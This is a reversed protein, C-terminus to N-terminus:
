RGIGGNVVKGPNEMLLLKGVDMGFAKQVVNWVTGLEATRTRTDHADSSIAFAVGHRLAWHATRACHTGFRGLVSDKDLQLLYGEQAWIELCEPEEWVVPYREPHALMPTYGASKVRAAAREIAALRVDFRFEILLCNSNALPLVEGRALTEALRENCLLEMGPYLTVPIKEKAFAANFAAVARRIWEIRQRMHHTGATCHPTCVIQRVGSEAAMRAMQFTMEPTKAGDDIGPLLHCHLDVLGREPRM